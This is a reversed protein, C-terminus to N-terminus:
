QTLCVSLCISPGVSLSVWDTVLPRLTTSRHPKIKIIIHIIIIIIIYYTYKLHKLSTFVATFIEITVPSVISNSKPIERSFEPNTQEVLQLKWNRVVSWKRQVGTQQQPTWAFSNSWMEDNGILYEYSTEDCWIVHLVRICAVTAETDSFYSNIM